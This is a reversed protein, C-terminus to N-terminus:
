QQVLRLPAQPYPSTLPPTIPLMNDIFSALIERTVSQPIREFWM